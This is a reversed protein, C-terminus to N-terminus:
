VGRQLRVKLVKGGMWDQGTGAGTERSNWFLPRIPERKLDALGM